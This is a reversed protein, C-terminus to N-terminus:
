TSYIMKKLEPHLHSSNRIEDSKYFEPLYNGFIYDDDEDDYISKGAQKRMAKQYKMNALQTEIDINKKIIVSKKYRAKELM